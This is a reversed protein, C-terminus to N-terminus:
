YIPEHKRQGPTEGTPKAVEPPQTATKGNPSPPRKSPARKGGGETLRKSAPTPSPTAALDPASGPGSAPAAEDVIAGGDAIAALDGSSAPQELAMSGAGGRQAQHGSRGLQWIGLAVALGLLAVVGILGLWSRRPAPALPLPALPLTAAPPPAAALAAAPATAPTALTPAEGKIHLLERMVETATAPRDERRKSLLRRVLEALAPPSVGVLEPVAEYLHAELWGYQSSASFPLRGMLCRFLIVGLAYLDARGDLDPLTQWQEPAMYPPTGMWMGAQTAGSSDQLKAIGFDLVKVFEPNTQRAVVFINDPKLDRHVISLNHAAALAAAVQAAIHLTRATPLPGQLLLHELSKGQLLEMVVYCTGDATVGGDFIQVINEHEARSAASAENIFRRKIDANLAMQPHLVKVASRRGPITHHEAEYVTGFGGVGLPRLLRWNGLVQGSHDVPVNM